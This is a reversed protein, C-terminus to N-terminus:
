YLKDLKIIMKKLEIYYQNGHYALHDIAIGALNEDCTHEFEVVMGGDVITKPFQKEFYGTSRHGCKCPKPVGYKDKLIKRMKSM